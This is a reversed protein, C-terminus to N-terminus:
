LNLGDGEERERAGANSYHSPLHRHVGGFGELVRVGNEQNVPGGTIYGFREDFGTEDNVDFAARIRVVEEELLPAVILEDLLADTLGGSVRVEDEGIARKRFKGGDDIEGFGNVGFGDPRLGTEAGVALGIIWAAAPERVFVFEGGAAEDLGGAQLVDRLGVDGVDSALESGGVGLPKYRKMEVFSTDAPPCLFSDRKPGSSAVLEWNRNEM